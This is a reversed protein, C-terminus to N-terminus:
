YENRKRRMSASLKATALARAIREGARGDGYPHEAPGNRRGRRREAERLADVIAGANPTDVDVVGPPRERGRQRPGVNVVAVGLAAAEILGASSNGVMPWGEAVARKLLAVFRQRPLHEVISGGRERAWPELVGRVAVSGPDANPAFVLATRAAREM